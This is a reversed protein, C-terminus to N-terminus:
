VRAFFKYVVVATLISCAFFIWYSLIPLVTPKYAHAIRTQLPRRIREPAGIVAERAGAWQHPGCLRYAYSVNPGFLLAWGLPPEAITYRAISPRCGIFSALDDLYTAYDVWFRQLSLSFHRDLTAKAEDVEQAMRQGSPLVASKNDRKKAAFTHFFLRAQMEATSIIAGTPQILGVFGLTNHLALDGDVPFIYKWLRAYNNEVAILTGDEVLHTDFLYGTALIVNDAHETVTGDTWEIGGETFRAVDPRVVVTGSLIRNPLEDNLTAHKAFPRYTPQIGYLEHDFRRRLAALTSRELYWKPLLRNWFYANFRTKVTDSPYGNPGVRNFVYAGGRTSWYVQQSVRSLEVAIDVASNGAGVVVNIRDEFPKPEKYQKAHLIRGRFASQNPRWEECEAPFNPMSNHGTCILVCDFVERKSQGSPDNFHVAWKGSVAYDSAREIRTVLTRLRIYRLLRHEEAYLRLYELLKSHHMYNPFDPPPPFDSYATMEKSTNIITSKMVSASKPDGSYRWIGGIDDSAEFVVPELGYKRAWRAAPLGSAGAGVIACRPRM